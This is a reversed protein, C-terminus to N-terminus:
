MRDTIRTGPSLRMQRKIREDVLGGIETILADHQHGLPRVKRQEVVARLLARLQALMKFLALQAIQADGAVVIEAAIQLVALHRLAFDLDVVDGIQCPEGVIETSVQHTNKGGVFVGDRAIRRLPVQHYGREFLAGPAGSLETHGEAHLVM